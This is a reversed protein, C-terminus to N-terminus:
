DYRIRPDLVAYLLDVALNAFLYVLILFVSIGVVVAGEQLRIAQFLGGGIGPINFIGETVIAGGMLAGLDIALFTVVPILSNPLVHKLIVDRKSLGKAVATRRYDSRINEILETRTLRAVYALSLTALVIAPLIYSYLGQSVGAVPFWGLKVGFVIQALFGLVFTPVAVAITTGVLVSNDAASNKRLGAWIGLALGVVIEFAFAMLALQITVPWRDAIIDSVDRGKFTQGFDGTFIGGLWKFYQVIFPDNLNYQERIAEITAPPLPKEGALARIPDGPLAFVLFYILFTAGFFV